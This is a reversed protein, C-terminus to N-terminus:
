QLSSKSVAEKVQANIDVGLAPDAFPLNDNDTNIVMSLGMGRAINSITHNLRQKLPAYADKRAQELLRLAEKRFKMNSDMMQQLEAQRKQRISPALDRQSDLFEEYKNNFEEQSRKQEADYKVRIDNVNKEAQAYEPMSRLAESYSLYGFRLTPRQNAPTASTLTQMPVTETTQACLASPAALLAALLLRSLTSKKM